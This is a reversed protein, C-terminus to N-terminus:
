IDIDGLANQNIEKTEWTRTLRACMGIMINEGEVSRSDSRGVRAEDVITGRFVVLLMSGDM